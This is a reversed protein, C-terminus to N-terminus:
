TSLRSTSTLCFSYLIEAVNYSFIQQFRYNARRLIPGFSLVHWEEFTCAKLREMYARLATSADFLSNMIHFEYYYIAGQQFILELLYDKWTTRDFGIDIMPNIWYYCVKSVYFNRFLCITCIVVMGSFIYTCYLLVISSNLLCLCM